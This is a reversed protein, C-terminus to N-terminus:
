AAHGGLAGSPAATVLAPEDSALRAAVVEDARVLPVLRAGGTLSSLPRDFAAADAVRASGAASCRSARARCGRMCGRATRSRRTPCRRARPFAQAARRHPKALLSAPHAFPASQRPTMLLRFALHDEAPAVVADCLLRVGPSPPSMAWSPKTAGAITHGAAAIAYAASVRGGDALRRTVGDADHSVASVEANWGPDCLDTGRLAETRMQRINVFPPDRSEPGPPMKLRFV